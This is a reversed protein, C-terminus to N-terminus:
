LMNEKKQSKKYNFYISIIIFSIIYCFIFWALKNLWIGDQIHNVAYTLICSLIVSIIYYFIRKGSKNQIITEILFTSNAFITSFLLINPSINENIIKNDFTVALIITVIFITLLTAPFKSLIKKFTKRSNELKEKIKKM